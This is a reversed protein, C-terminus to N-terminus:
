PRSQVELRGLLTRAEPDGLVAAKRYWTAAAAADPRIGHTDARLLFDLDYTKGAATAATASGMAAAREYLLRAAIIDGVALAADGRQTLLGIMAQPPSASQTRTAAQTPAQTAAPPPEPTPRSIPASPPVPSSPAAPQPPLTSTPGLVPMSTAGSTAAPAPKSTAVPESAGADPRAATGVEIPVENPPPPNFLWSVCAVTVASALGALLVVSWRVRAPPLVPRRMVLQTSGAPQVLAERAAGARAILRPGASPRTAGKAMTTAPSRVPRAAVTAQAPRDRPPTVLAPAGNPPPQPAALQDPLAVTLRWRGEPLMGSALSAFQGATPRSRDEALGEPVSRSPLDSLVAPPAPWDEPLIESALAALHAEVALPSWDEALLESASPPPEVPIAAQAPPRGEPVVESVPAAPDYRAEVPPPGGDSLIVSKSLDADVSNAEAPPSGDEPPRVPVVPAPNIPGIVPPTSRGPLVQLALPELLARFAVDDLDEQTTMDASM